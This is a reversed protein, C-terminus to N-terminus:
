FALLCLRVIRHRNLINMINPKCVFLRTAFTHMLYVSESICCLTLLWIDTSYKASRHMKMIFQLSNAKQTCTLSPSSTPKRLYENLKIIIIWYLFNCQMKGNIQKEISDNVSLGILQAVTVFISEEISNCNNQFIIYISMLISSKFAIMYSRHNHLCVIQSNIRHLRVVFISIMFVCNIETM